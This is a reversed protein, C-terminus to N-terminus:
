SSGKTPFKKAERERESKLGNQCKLSDRKKADLAEDKEVIM